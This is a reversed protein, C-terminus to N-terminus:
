SLGRITLAAVGGEGLLRHATDVIRARRLTMAPSTYRRRASEKKVSEKQVARHEEYRMYQGGEQMNM